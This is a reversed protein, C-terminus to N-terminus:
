ADVLGVVATRNHFELYARGSNAIEGLSLMGVVPLGSDVAALEAAFDGDLFRARSICDILFTGQPERKGRYASRAIHCARGAAKVVGERHGSLIYVYTGQPVEGVCVLAQGERAVPDRVVMEDDIKAIGLAYGNAQDFFAAEDFPRGAHAEVAQRYMEFAPQWDLSLIINRDAETVKFRRGIPEWGHAVGVGAGIDTLALAAADQLLGRNTLVCPKQQSGVPGAGGGLFDIELGFANYLADGLAGIRRGRGDAIVLLTGGHRESHPLAADIHGHLDSSGDSIGAVVAVKARCQLGLVITGREFCGRGLVIRPFVGGILPKGFAQLMPNLSAPTFDNAEGALVVVLGVEPMAAMEALFGSLVNAEGAPDFRILM